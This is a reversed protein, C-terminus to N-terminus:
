YDLFLDEATVQDQMISSYMNQVVGLSTIMILQVAKSTKTVNKFIGMKNRLEMDYAKDITYPKESFKIECVDIIRDRRDILMDIQVGGHVEDAKTFWASEESYLGAISLKHKIQKIHITYFPFM